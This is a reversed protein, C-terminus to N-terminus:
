QAPVYTPDTTFNDIISGYAAVRGSGSTVQVIVRANYVPNSINFFGALQIIYGLQRFENPALDFEIVPSVTSDPLVLMLKGHAANGSTEVLGVNSHFQSSQELQLIQLPTDGVGVSGSSPTVGPIFQGFTGGSVPDLSYTRGTLVLSSTTPTTALISGGGSAVNFFSPLVNDIAKVQGKGLAFAPMTVPTGNGQPYYTLTVNAGTTGGNFLRIDSHYNSVASTFEAIGPAVYRTANVNAAQVPMVALPDATKKDLVSAYASVAGTASEVTIEIRGDDLNAIGSNLIFHGLQQQEGPQLSYAVSKLLTGLDDYVNIHGSAPTGSGEVLGLNTYFKSSEAVQQLSMPAPPGSPPQLPLASLATAFQSFPIAAIFQGYTGAATSIYTRSSAYTATSSNKLPRIELSGFGTANPDNPDGSAGYGFFDKAIDNLAITQLSKVNITTIKGTTTGDSRTPTFTVQYDIASTSANTMRVDSVFPGAAGNVHTVVPIILANAPPLSKGGSAVPTVLSVSVPTTQATGTSPTVTVTGTNAGPPLNTPNMVVTVLTGGPPITGTSPTISMYPKDSTATFTPDGLAGSKQSPGKVLIQISVPDTSGFQTVGDYTRQGPTPPQPATVLTSATASYPGPAGGSCSTSRVRYYYTTNATVTHKFTASTTSVTQSTVNSFDSATSEDIQYASGSSTATWALSYSGGSSINTPAFLTPTCTPQIVNAYASVIALENNTDLSDVVYTFGLIPASGSINVTSTFSGHPGLTADGGCAAFTMGEYPYVTNDVCNTFGLGSNFGSMSIQTPPAESLFGAIFVGSCSSTGNNTTTSTCKSNTCDVVIALNCSQSGSPTSPRTAAFTLNSDGNWVSTSTIKGSMSNGSVTATSSGTNGEMTFFTMALTSGSITGTLPTNEGPGFTPASCSGGIPIASLSGTGSVSSGNQTLVLVITGTGTVPLNCGISWTASYAGSWTGSVDSQAVGVAPFCIIALVAIAACFAGSFSVVSAFLNGQRM